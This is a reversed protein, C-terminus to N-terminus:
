CIFHLSCLVSCLIIYSLVMLFLLVFRVNSTGRLTSFFTSYIQDFFPLSQAHCTSTGGTYKYTMCKARLYYILGPISSDKLHTAPLVYIVLVIFLFSM